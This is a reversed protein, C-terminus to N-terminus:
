KDEPIPNRIINLFAESFCEATEVGQNGFHRYILLHYMLSEMGFIVATAVITSYLVCCAEDDLNYQARVSNIHNDLEDGITEALEEIPEDGSTALREMVMNTLFRTMENFSKTKNNTNM